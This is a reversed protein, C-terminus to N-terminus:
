SQQPSQQPSQPTWAQAAAARRPRSVSALALVSGSVLLAGGYIAMTVVGATADEGSCNEVTTGGQPSPPLTTCTSRSDTELNDDLQGFGYIAVLGVALFCLASLMGLLIKM